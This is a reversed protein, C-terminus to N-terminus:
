RRRRGRDATHSSASDNSNPSNTRPAPGGRDTDQPMSDGRLIWEITPAYDAPRTREYLEELAAKYRERLAEWSEGPLPKIPAAAVTRLTIDGRLWHWIERINPFAWIGHIHRYLWRQLQGLIGGWEVRVTFMENEGYTLVPQIAAGHLVALEFIGRRDACLRMKRPETALAERTGGLVIAFSKGDALHRHLTEKHSDILGIAAAISRVVPFKTLVPTTVTPIEHVLAFHIYPAAAILGHPHCSYITPTTPNTHLGTAPSVAAMQAGVWRTVHRFWDPGRTYRLWAYLFLAPIVVFIAFNIGIILAILIGLAVLTFALIVPWVVFLRALTAIDQAPDM